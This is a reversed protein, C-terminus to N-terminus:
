SIQGSWVLLFPNSEGPTCLQCPYGNCVTAVMLDSLRQLAPKLSDPSTLEVWFGSHFGWGQYVSAATEEQFSPSTWSLLAPVVSWSLVARRFGSREEPHWSFPLANISVPLSSAGARPFETPHKSRVCKVSDFVLSCCNRLCFPAPVVSCNVKPPPPTSSILVLSGEMTSSLPQLFGQSPTQPLSLESLVLPNARWISILDLHTHSTPAASPLGPQNEWGPM